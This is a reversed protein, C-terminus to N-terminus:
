FISTFSHHDNVCENWGASSHKLAEYYMARHEDVANEYSVYRGVDFGSKYFLLLTLLRSVRGNGDPFLHICLFDLIFCPILLLSEANREDRAEAHALCMDKMASPTEGASVPVFRVDKELRSVTGGKDKGVSEGGEEYHHSTRRVDM